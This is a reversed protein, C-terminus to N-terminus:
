KKRGQVGTSVIMYVSYGLYQEMAVIKGFCVALLHLVIM